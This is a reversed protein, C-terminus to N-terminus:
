LTCYEDNWLQVEIYKYKEEIERMYDDITGKYGSIDNLLMEKTYMTLKDHQIEKVMEGNKSVVAMSDGLTFSIYESPIIKLEIKKIFGNGFWNDLFESGHLVFSLPHKEKPKGGLSLFMNYLYEDTMMRRPYYNEFDAFRYFATTDPNDDAMKHAIAFAAEKPLRCINFFPTCNKHCYNVIYLEDKNIMFAGGNYLSRRGEAAPAPVACFFLVVVGPM